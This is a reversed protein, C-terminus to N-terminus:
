ADSGVETKWGRFRRSARAIAIQALVTAVATAALPFWRTVTFAGLLGVLVGVLFGVHLGVAMTLAIRPDRIPADARSVRASLGTV